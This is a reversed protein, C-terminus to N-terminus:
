GAIGPPFNATAVFWAGHTFCVRPQARDGLLGDGCVAGDHSGPCQLHRLRRAIRRSHAVDSIAAGSVDELTRVNELPVLFRTPSRRVYSRCLRRPGPGRAIAIIAYGYGSKDQLLPLFVVPNPETNDPSHYAFDQVIGVIQRQVKDVVIASGLANGKPWYRHAMSENIVAVKPATDNDSSAFDRGQQM